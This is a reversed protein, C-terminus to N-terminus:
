PETSDSEATTNGEEIIIDSSTQDIEFLQKPVYDILTLEKVWVFEENTCYLIEETSVVWNDDIDQVPNFYSDPAYSHGVLQEKQQETLLGVQIM